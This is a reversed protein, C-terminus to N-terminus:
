WLSSKGAAGFSSNLDMGDMGAVVESCCGSVAIYVKSEEISTSNTPPQITIPSTSVFRGAILKRSQYSLVCSAISHKQPRMSTKGKPDIALDRIHFIPSSAFM